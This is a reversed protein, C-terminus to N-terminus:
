RAPVVLRTIEEVLRDIEARHDRYFRVHDPPAAAWFMRNEPGPGPGKEGSDMLRAVGMAPSLAAGTMVYDRAGIGRARCTGISFANAEIRHIREELPLTNILKNEGRRKPDTAAARYLDASVALAQRVHEMSLSYAAVATAEQMTTQSRLPPAAFLFVALSVGGLRICAVKPSKM